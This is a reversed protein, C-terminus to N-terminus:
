RSIQVVFSNHEGYNLVNHEDKTKPVWTNQIYGRGSLIRHEFLSGRYGMAVSLRM